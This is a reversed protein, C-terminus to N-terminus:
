RSLQREFGAQISNAQVEEYGPPADTPTDFRGEGSSNPLSEAPRSTADAVVNPANRQGTSHGNITNPAPAPDPAVIDHGSDEYSPLQDLHVAELNVAGYMENPRRAVGSVELAQQLRERIREFSNHFDPAGGENFTLKLEISSHSSPINGGPM